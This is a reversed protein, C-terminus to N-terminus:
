DILETVWTVAERALAVADNAADQTYVDAPIGAPLM